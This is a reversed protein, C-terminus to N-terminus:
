KEVLTIAQVFDGPAIEIKSQIKAGFENGESISSASVKQEQLELIEGEGIKEDRRLITITAGKKLSGETVRGGLVQKSGSKSFTKLIKAVGLIEEVTKKPKRKKIEGEIWEKIEYIISFTSIPIGLREAADEASEDAKVNFGVILANESASALRVDNETITGVGESVVRIVVDETELKEIESKVADITGRVDTKIVLPLVFVDEGYETIEKVIKESLGAKEAETGAEKRSEYAIFQEGVRPVDSFGTLLVPSSVCAESIKKGTFDEMIRVPALSSGIRVYMGQRLCGNKIILTASTGRKPDVNTEIVVGQAPADREAKLERMDGVLLLVDLLEDIHEGQKASIGVYPIDGGYGELYIENEILSSITKSIDANPKDIKNIAVVFPIDSEKIARYAELTQTNVGDDAAVVLIAIDAVRAGRSRMTSFAEHGPTDIFTIKKEKGEHEHTVEYASIHQTIGGAEEDVINTKRIYDLLTSKGHDIHGMVVIVPPREITNTKQKTNPMLALLVVDFSPTYCLSYQVISSDRYLAVIM